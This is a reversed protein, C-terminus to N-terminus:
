AGASASTACRRCASLPGVSLAVPRAIVTGPAVGFGGFYWVTKPLASTSIARGTAKDTPGSLAHLRQAVDAEAPAYGKGKETTIHLLVPGDITKAFEFFDVLKNVNHGNEPGFYHFGLSEFLMGPTLVSKVGGELRSAVRRLRDGWVGMEGTIDWIGGRIKQVVSTQAILM